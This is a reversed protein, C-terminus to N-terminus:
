DERAEYGVLSDMLTTASGDPRVGSLAERLDQYSFPQNWNEVAIRKLLNAWQDRGLDDRIRQWMLPGHRYAMKFDAQTGFELHYLSRDSVDPVKENLEQQYSELVANASDEGFESRIFEVRVCEALSEEIFLRGPPVSLTNTLLVNGVWQHAVEHAPWDGFGSHWFYKPAWGGVIMLGPLSQVAQFEPVEILVFDGFPYPGFVQSYYRLAMVCQDVIASATSDPAEHVYFDVQFGADDSSHTAVDSTDIFLLPMVYTLQEMNWTEYDLGMERDAPQFRGCSFSRYREPAFVGIQFQFAVNPLVPYWRDERRLMIDGTAMTDCILRYAFELTIADSTESMPVRELSVLVLSDGGGARWEIPHRTTGDLRSISDIEAGPSMLVVLGGKPDWDSTRITAVISFRSLSSDLSIVVSYSTDKVQNVPGQVSCGSCLFPILFSLRLMGRAWVARDVQSM